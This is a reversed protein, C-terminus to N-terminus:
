ISPLAKGALTFVRSRWFIGPLEQLASTNAPNLKIARRTCVFGFSVLAVVATFLCPVILKDKKAQHHEVQSINPSGKEM